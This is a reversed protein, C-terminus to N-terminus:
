WTAVSDAAFVREVLRAYDPTDLTLDIVEVNQEAHSEQSLMLSRVWDDSPRTLVHLLTTM